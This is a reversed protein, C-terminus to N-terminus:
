FVNLMFIYERQFQFHCVQASSDLEAKRQNLNDRQKTFNNYQEFAKKNVHGFQKLGENAKHLRTLLQKSLLRTYESDERLAEEPLVGLDRIKRTCDEKQKQLLAKKQIYKEM